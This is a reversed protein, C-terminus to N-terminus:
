VDKLNASINQHLSLIHGSSTLLVVVPPVGVLILNVFMAAANINGCDMVIYRVNRQKGPDLYNNTQRM